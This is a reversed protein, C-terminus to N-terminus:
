RKVLFSYSLGRTFKKTLTSSFYIAGFNDRNKFEEYFNGIM